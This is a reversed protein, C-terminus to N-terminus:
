CLVFTCEVALLIHGRFIQHLFALCFCVGSLSFYVLRGLACAIIYKPVGTNYIRLIPTEAKVSFFRFRSKCYLRGWGVGQETGIEM